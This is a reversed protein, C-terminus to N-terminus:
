CCPQVLAKLVVFSLGRCQKISTCDKVELPSGELPGKQLMCVWIGLDWLTVGLEVVEACSWLRVALQQCAQPM